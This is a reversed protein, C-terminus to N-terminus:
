PRHLVRTWAVGVEEVGLQVCDHEAGGRTRGADYLVAFSFM